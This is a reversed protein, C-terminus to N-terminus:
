HREAKSKKCSQAGDDGAGPVSVVDDLGEVVREGGDIGLLCVLPTCYRWVRKLHAQKNLISSKLKDQGGSMQM